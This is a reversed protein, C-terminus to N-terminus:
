FPIDEFEKPKIYDILNKSILENIIKTAKNEKWDFKKCIMEIFKQQDLDDNYRVYYYLIYVAILEVPKDGTFILDLQQTDIILLDEFDSLHSM